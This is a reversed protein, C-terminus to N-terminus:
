WHSKVANAGELSSVRPLYLKCASRPGRREPSATAGKAAAMSNARVLPHDHAIVHVQPRLGQAHPRAAAATPVM